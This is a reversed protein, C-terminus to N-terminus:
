RRKRAARAARRPAAHSTAQERLDDLLCERDAAWRELIGPPAVGGEHRSGWKSLELLVPALDLGKETLSYLWKRGDSPDPEKAVIGADLLNKIRDALVNTAIGQGAHLFENFTRYGAFLLDRVVLLSWRDGIVLLSANIPCTDAAPRAMELLM